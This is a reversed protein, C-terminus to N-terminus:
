TTSFQRRQDPVVSFLFELCMDGPVVLLEQSSIGTSYATRQAQSSTNEIEMRVLKYNDKEERNVLSEKRRQLKM